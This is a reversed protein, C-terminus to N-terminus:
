NRNRRRLMGLGGIALLALTMPEPVETFSLYDVSLANYSGQLFGNAVGFKGSSFTPDYATFSMPEAGVDVGNADKATVTVAISLDAPNWVITGEYYAEGNTYYPPVEGPKEAAGGLASKVGGSRKFLEVNNAGMDWGGFQLYYTNSTDQYGFVMASWLAGPLVRFSYTGAGDISNHLALFPYSPAAVNANTAAPGVWNADWTDVQLCEYTNGGNTASMPQNAAAAGIITFDAGPVYSAGQGSGIDPFDGTNFSESWSALAMAPALALVGLLAVALGIHKGM